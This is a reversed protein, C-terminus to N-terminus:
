GSSFLSNLIWIILFCFCFTLARTKAAEDESPYHQTKSQERIQYIGRNPGKNSPARTLLFFRGERTLAVAM